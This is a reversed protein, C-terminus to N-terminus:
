YLEFQKLQRKVCAFRSLTDHKNIDNKIFNCSGRATPNRLTEKRKSKQVTSHTGKLYVATHWAKRYVPVNQSRRIRKAFTNQWLM